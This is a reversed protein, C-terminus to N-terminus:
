LELKFPGLTRKQSGHAGTMDINCLCVNLCFVGVCLYIFIFYKINMHYALLLLFINMRNWLLLGCPFTLIRSRLYFTGHEATSM